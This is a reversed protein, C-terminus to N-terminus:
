LTVAGAGVQVYEPGGRMGMQEEDILRLSVRRDPGRGGGGGGGGSLPAAVAQAGGEV